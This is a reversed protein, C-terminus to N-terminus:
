ISNTFFGKDTEPPSPHGLLHFSGVLRCLGEGASADGSVQVRQTQSSLVVHILYYPM